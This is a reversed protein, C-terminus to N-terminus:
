IEKLKALEIQQLKIEVREKMKICLDFKLRIAEEYAKLAKKLDVRKNFLGFEFILGIKAEAACNGLIAAKNLLNPVNDLDKKIGYLGDEYWRSLHYYASANDKQAAAVYLNFARQPDKRIIRNSADTNAASLSVPQLPQNALYYGFEFFVALNVMAQAHGLAVAKEYLAMAKEDDRGEAGDFKLASQYYHESLQAQDIIPLSTNNPALNTTLSLNSGDIAHVIRFGFVLIILLNRAILNKM